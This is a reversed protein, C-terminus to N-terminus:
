VSRLEIPVTRHYQVISGTILLCMYVYLTYIPFVFWPRRTIYSVAFTKQLTKIRQLGVSSGTSAEYSM